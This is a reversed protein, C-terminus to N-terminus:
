IADEDGDVAELLNRVSMVSTDDEVLVGFDGDAEDSRWCICVQGDGAVADQDVSEITAWLDAQEDILVLQGPQLKGARANQAPAYLDEVDPCGADDDPQLHRLSQGDVGGGAVPGPTADLDRVSGGGALAGPEIPAYLEPHDCAPAIEAVLFDVYTLPKDEGDDKVPPVVVHPQHTVHEPRLQNLLALEDPNATAPDPTWYCQFEVPNGESNAGTGRGAIRRPVATGVNYSEWMMKAGDPSLRGLSARAMFQDRVDGGLWSADPRQTGLILNVRAVRGLSAILFVQELIPCVKSGGSPKVGAYWANVIGYFYRYEDLVLVLRSFDNKTAKGAEILKYRRDMEQAVQHIVAVMDPVATAVCKVNPWAKLGVFEIRKPDCLYLEWGRRCGETILGRILNTKGTGTSGTVLFHPTAATDNLDWYLTEGDEDVGYPLRALDAGQPSALNRSLTPPIQPRLEFRVTDAELDWHARWRGPLMTTVVRERAGRVAASASVKVGITHAVDISAVQDAEWGVETRADTGFLVTVLDEVRKQLQASPVKEGLEAATTIVLDLRCRRVDHRVVRAVADLRVSVIKAVKREWEPEHAPAAPDYDVRLRTPTGGLRGKWRRARVTGERGILPALGQLVRVMLQGRIGNRVVAVGSALAAAGLTLSGGYLAGAIPTIPAAAVGGAALATLTAPTRMLPLADRASFRPSSTFGGRAIPLTM